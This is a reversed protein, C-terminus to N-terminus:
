LEVETAGNGGSERAALKFGQITPHQRLAQHVADRLVGTGIGHIIRVHRYNRLMAGDLFKEVEMIATIPDNGRIDLEFVTEEELKLDIKKGTKPAQIATDSLRLEKLPVTSRMNGFLVVAKDNRISEVVGPQEGDLLTVVSGETLEKAAAAPKKLQDRLRAAAKQQLSKKDRIFSRLKDKAADFDAPEADKLEKLYAKFTDEMERLADQQKELRQRRFQAEKEQNKRIRDRLEQERKALDKEHRQLEKDRLKLHEKEIRVSKLLAEFQVQEKSMLSRAKAILEDPLKSKHAIEMAYSSGPKGMDLQYTPRLAAEDYIMSANSMGPQSEAFSKLNAYHTTIVGFVKKGHLVELAAEAIAGGMTPDTGTGFEDILLLTQHNGRQIFQRMKMLRSSYTSLEDELSQSDGIDAMLSQFIGISSQQGAPILLGSQAMMQLLGITKMAVSKGGANPGSIIVIRRDDNMEIDLPVVQKKQQHHHQWLIPHRAQYLRIEPRDTVRPQEAGIDIAYRAKARNVDLISLLWQHRVLMEHHPRLRACLEKMLRYIERQEERELEFLRNQIFVVAEPEIFTTRGTESEDHIIGPVQRKYESAVGLVRRNNRMSEEVDSLKGEARLRRLVAGFAKDIERYAGDLSKRIRQLEPSADPRLNGDDDLIEAVALQVAKDYPINECLASLAPYLEARTHMFKLINGTSIAMRRIAHLSDPPLVFDIIALQDLLTRTDASPIGPFNDEQMEIRMMEATQQLLKRVETAKSVPRILDVRERGQVSSCRKSIEALVKTFELQESLDDPFLRM